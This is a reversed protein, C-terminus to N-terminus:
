DRPSPSTYLLCANVEEFDDAAEMVGLNVDKKVEEAGKAGSVEAVKKKGASKCVNGFHGKGKCKRCEKDRAPCQERSHAERGCYGCKKEAGGSKGAFKDVRKTFKGKQHESLRFVGGAKAIQDGASKGMECSEVLKVVEVLGMESGEDKAAGAALVKTQIDKDVLGRVLQLVKFKDKFCVMQDCQSGTCKVQLDCM